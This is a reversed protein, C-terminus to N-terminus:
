VVLVFCIMGVRLKNKDPMLVIGFSGCYGFGVQFMMM